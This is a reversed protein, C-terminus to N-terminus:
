RSEEQLQPAPGEGPGALSATAPRGPSGAWRAFPKADPPASAPRPGAARRGALSWVRAPGGRTPMPLAACSAFYDAFTHPANCFNCYPFHSSDFDQEFLAGDERLLAVLGSAYSGVTAVSREAFSRTNSALDFTEEPLEAFHFSAVWVVGPPLGRLGHTGTGPYMRVSGPRSSTLTLYAASYCLSRPFDCMVYRVNPAMQRIFFALGGYGGGIELVHPERMGRVRDLWGTRRLLLIREQYALIDRNVIRGRVCWGIEGLKLPFRCIWEEPLHEIAEAFAAMSWDPAGDLSRLDITGAIGDTWGPVPSGTALGVLGYGTFHGSHLRLHNVMEFSPRFVSSGRSELDANCSVGAPSIWTEDAVDLGPDGPQSGATERHAALIEGLRSGMAWAAQHAAPTIRTNDDLTLSPYRTRQSRM